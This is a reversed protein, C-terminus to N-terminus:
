ADDFTAGDDSDTTPDVQSDFEADDALVGESVFDPAEEVVPANALALIAEEGSDNNPTPHKPTEGSVRERESKALELFSNLQGLFEPNKTCYDVLSLRFNYNYYVESEIKSVTDFVPSIISDAHTAVNDM